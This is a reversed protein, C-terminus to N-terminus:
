DYILKDDFGVESADHRDAAFYVRSLRSWYIASLCMPCPECSSYLTCGELSFTGLAKCAQRIACVEAHATPDNSRTVSNAAESIVEGASNLILAGFPGGGQGVDECALAVTRELHVHHFRDADTGFISTFERSYVKSTTVATVSYSEKSGNPTNHANM